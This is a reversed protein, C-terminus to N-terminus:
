KKNSTADEDTSEETESSAHTSAGDDKAGFMSRFLERFKQRYSAFVISGAAITGIISQLILSGTGPDLYAYASTTYAGTMLWATILFGARVNRNM